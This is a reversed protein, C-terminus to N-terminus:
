RGPDNGYGGKIQAAISVGLCFCGWMVNPWPNGGDSRVLMAVCISLFAGVSLGM